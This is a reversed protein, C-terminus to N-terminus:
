AEAGHGSLGGIVQSVGENHFIIPIIGPAAFLAM